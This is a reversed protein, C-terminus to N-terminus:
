RVVKGIIGEAIKKLLPWKKFGISLTFTLIIYLLMGILDPKVLRAGWFIIYFLTGGIIWSISLMVWGAPKTLTAKKFVQKILETFILIIGLYLVCVGFAIIISKM